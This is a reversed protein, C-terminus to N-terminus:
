RDCGSRRIPVIDGVITHMMKVFLFQSWDMGFLDNARIITYWSNRIYSAQIRIESTLTHVCVHCSKPQAHPWVVIFTQMRAGSPAARWVSTNATNVVSCVFVSVRVACFVVICFFSMGTRTHIYTRRHTQAHAQQFNHWDNNQLTVWLHWMCLHSSACLAASWAGNTRACSM